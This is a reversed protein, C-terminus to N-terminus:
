VNGGGYRKSLENWRHAKGVSEILDWSLRYEENMECQLQTARDLDEIDGNAYFRDCLIKIERILEIFQQIYWDHRPFM